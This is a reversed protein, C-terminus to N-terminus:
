NHFIANIVNTSFPLGIPIHTLATKAELCFLCKKILKLLEFNHFYNNEIM